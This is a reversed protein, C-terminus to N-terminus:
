KLKCPPLTADAPTGPDRADRGDGPASEAGRLLDIAEELESFAAELVGGRDAGQSGAAQRLAAFRASLGAVQDSTETM